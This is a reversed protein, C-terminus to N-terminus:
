KGTMLLPIPQSGHRQRGLRPRVFSSLQARLGFIWGAMLLRGGLRFPHWFRGGLPSPPPPATRPPICPALTELIKGGSAVDPPPPPERCSTTWTQTQIKRPHKVNPRCRRGPEGPPSTPTLCEARSPGWTVCVAPLRRPPPPPCAPRWRWCCVLPAPAVSGLQAVWAPTSNTEEVAYGLTGAIGNGVFRPVERGAGRFAWGDKALACTPRRTNCRRGGVGLPFAEVHLSSLCIGRQRSLISM